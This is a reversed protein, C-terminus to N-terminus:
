KATAYLVVASTAQVQVSVGSKTPVIHGNEAGLLLWWPGGAVDFWTAERAGNLLVAMLGRPTEIQYGVSWIASGWLPRMPNGALMAPILWAKRLAILRRYQDVLEGNAHRERWDLHNTGDDRNYSNGDLPGAHDRRNQEQVKARAWEQGQAMMVAGRSLLLAAAALKHVRLAHGHVVSVADRRVKEGEHAQGLALRVFDGLTLDDHSELYNLTLSSDDFLGGLSRPSGALLACLDQRNAGGQGEGFIFGRGTHPNQGKIGNRFRDNWVTHGMRALDAPRYGAMSWPESILIARPYEARTADRLAQLTADDLIAALDLRLGDVHYARMWHVAADLVLAAMAADRTDLDNGCGSHSRLQGHERSFWTGPDLRLLPNDDHISVHNFVLDLVVAIGDRHLRRIMERLEDGPDHFTGDDDVGIWAGPQPSVGRLSYRETPAMFFSPMYGWHNKGTPNIYGGDQPAPELLPFATVPLLEVCDVGLDRLANLGGQAGPTADVLGLYSGPHQVGSSQHVTFDRIHVELIIAEHVAIAPRVDGHWQFAGSQAVSWTPHGPAFQRAVAFSRPDAIDFTEQDQEVRYRYYRLPLADHAEFGAGHPHVFPTMEAIRESAADEPHSRQVLWVRQAKPALLRFAHERGSWGLNPAHARLNAHTRKSM